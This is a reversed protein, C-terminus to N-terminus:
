NRDNPENSEGENISMAITRFKGRMLDDLFLFLDRETEDDRDLDVNNSGAAGGKCKL